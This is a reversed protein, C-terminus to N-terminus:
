CGLTAGGDVLISEMTIHAANSSLLFLVVAAINDPSAIRQLPIGLRYNELSGAIVNEPGSTDTWLQRQMATDTSGPAVINCRINAQALELGLCKLMQTTAAKSAAYAGMGIRPASAANSSVAVIAGRRRPLMRRGVARCVNFAGTTNVSFTRQWDEDSCELLSGMRLIGAVSVLYDIDGLQNEVASIASNVAISDAVDVVFPTDAASDFHIDLAAVTAGAKQLADAVAKGIGRGAGTVVAIKGNFESVDM